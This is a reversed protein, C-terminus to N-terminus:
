VKGVVAFTDVPVAAEYNVWLLLRLGLLMFVMSCFLLAFLHSQFVRFNDMLTLRHSAERASQFKAM